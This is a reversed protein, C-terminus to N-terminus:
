RGLLCDQFAARDFQLRSSSRPGGSVRRAHRAFCEEARAEIQDECAVRKYEDKGVCRTVAAAMEARKEQKDQGAHFLFAAGALGLGILAIGVAWSRKDDDM